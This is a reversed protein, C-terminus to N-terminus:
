FQNAIKISLFWRNREIDFDIVFASYNDGVKVIDKIDYIYNDSIEGIPIFGNYINKNKRFTCIIGNTYIKTVKLEVFDGVQPINSSTIKDKKLTLSLEKTLAPHITFVWDEDMLVIDNGRHQWRPVNTYKGKNGLLGIRYLDNIVADMNKQLFTDEFKEDIHQKIEEYSFSIKFGRFCSIILEIDHPSYLANLEEILEKLCEKSYSGRIADFVAQVYAERDAEICNQTCLLFRVIDRPKLWSNNLIYVAPEMGMIQEPFWKKYIREMSMNEGSLSELMHIRKLWIEIIPHKYTDTSKYDWNLVVEFGSIVKNIEKSVVFRNISNIIETRISSFIKTNKFGLSAFMGNFEKVTILLDRIMRIDRKFIDVDSFFAELEDVFIYYPIDTRKLRKFYKQAKDIIEIFVNEHEVDLQGFDVEVSAKDTEVSVKKPMKLIKKTYGNSSIRNICKKFSDWLSNNIFLGNNYEENDDILKKFFIWKWIYEFNQEKLMVNKSIDISYSLSEAVNGMQSRKVPTYDEKFFIFSTCTQADRCMIENNLYFLLATKGTGKYGRIFFCDKRKILENTDVNQPIVYTKLFNDYGDYTIEDKADPKGIYIDRIKVGM